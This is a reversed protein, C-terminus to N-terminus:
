LYFTFDYVESSCHVLIQSIKQVRQKNKVKVIQKLFENSIGAM